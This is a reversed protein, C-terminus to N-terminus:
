KRVPITTRTQAVVRQHQLRREGVVSILELQPM